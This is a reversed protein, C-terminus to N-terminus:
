SARPLVTDGFFGEPPAVLTDGAEAFFAKYHPANQHKAYADRDRYVEYLYFVNSSKEDRLVDFYVCGPEKLTGSVDAELYKMFHDLRDSKVTLKAFLAFM